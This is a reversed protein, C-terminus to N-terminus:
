WPSAGPLVLALWWYSAPITFLLADMRDLIGGHGPFLTGSDKVGAERKWSSEALDGLQSVVSILLGGVAGAWAPLPVGLWLVLIPWGVIWGGLTGGVLGTVAGEVTKGPSLAPALKRRGFRRGGFFAASDTMWTVALPYAVLAVGALPAWLAPADPPPQLPLHRIFIVFSMAAAPLLAGLATVAVALLPRGDVGRRWVALAALLLLFAAAFTWAVPGVEAVSPWAAALMVLVAAGAAGTRRLAAVGQAAALRYVELAAGACFVALVPGMAWRGIWALAVATPIGVLAVAWRKKLESGAM